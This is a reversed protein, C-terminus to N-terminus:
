WGIVDILGWCVLGAGVMSPGYLAVRFTTSNDHMVMAVVCGAILLVAGVLLNIIGRRRRKAYWQNKLVVMATEIEAIDYNKSELSLRIDQLDTGSAFLQLGTTLAPNDRSSTEM